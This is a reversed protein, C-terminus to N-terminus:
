VFHSSAVVSTFLPSVQCLLGISIIYLRQSPADILSQPIWPEDRANVPRMPALPKTGPGAGTTAM